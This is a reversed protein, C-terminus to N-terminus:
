PGGALVSIRQAGPAHLAERWPTGEPSPDVGWSGDVGLNFSWVAYHGYSIGAVGAHIAEMIQEFVQDATCGANCGCMAGRGEYVPETLFVPKRPTRSIEATILSLISGPSCRHVSYFDMLDPDVGAQDVVAHGSRPHFTILRGPDAEQIGRRAELLRQLMDAPHRKGHPSDLGELSYAFLNSRSQVAAALTRAFELNNELLTDSTYDYAPVYLEAYMHHAELTDFIFALQELDVDDSEPGFKIVNFGQASRTEIYHAIDENSLRVLLWATDAVPFFPEGEESEFCAGNVVIRPTKGRLTGLDYCGGESVVARDGPLTDESAAAQTGGAGLVLALVSSLILARMHSFDAM